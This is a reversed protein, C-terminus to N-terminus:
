SSIKQGLPFLLSLNFLLSAAGTAVRLPRGAAAPFSWRGREIATLPM